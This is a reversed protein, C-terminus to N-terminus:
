FKQFMNVYLDSVWTFSFTSPLCLNVHRRLTDSKSIHQTWYDDIYKWNTLRWILLLQRSWDSFFALCHWKQALLWVSHVWCKQFAGEMNGSLEFFRLYWNRRSLVMALFLTKSLIGFIYPQSWSNGLSHLFLFYTSTLLFAHIRM